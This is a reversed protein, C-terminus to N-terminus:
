TTRKLDLLRKAKLPKTTMNCFAGKQSGKKLEVRGDVLSKNAQRRGCLVVTETAIYANEILTESFSRSM